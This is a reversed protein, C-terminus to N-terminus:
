GQALPPPRLSPDVCSRMLGAFQGSLGLLAQLRKEAETDPQQQRRAQLVRRELPAVINVYWDAIERLLERARLRAGTTTASEVSHLRTLEEATSAAAVDTPERAEFRAVARTGGEDPELHHVLRQDVGEGPSILGQEPWKKPRRINCQGCIPFLNAWDFKAGGADRPRRHDVETFRFLLKIECLYCKGGFDRRLAELVDAESWSKEEALSQPAPHSRKVDIM